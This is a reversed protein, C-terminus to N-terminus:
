PYGAVFMTLLSSKLPRILRSQCHFWLGMSVAQVSVSRGPHNRSLVLRMTSSRERAAVFFDDAEVEGSLM